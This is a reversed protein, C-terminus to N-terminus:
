RGQGICIALFHIRPIGAARLVRSCAEITSGTTYIDDVLVVCHPLRERGGAQYRPHIRFAEQLNKLREQPNLARQPATKRGRVLVQSDVPLEWERSLRKALEEAQNYGRERRRSPHVPVPVLVDAQWSDVLKGFRLAMAASYFDLYERKNKYKIAAMSHRAAENYNLLAAGSDFTRRHRMCDLCYEAQEGHVEKGCRLCVPQKVPALRDACFPCILEGVPEVIKGCVPCTRPFLLDAFKRIGENLM